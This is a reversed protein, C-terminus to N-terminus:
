RHGSAPRNEPLVVEPWGPATPARRPRPVTVAVAVSPGRRSPIAASRCRGCRHRAPTARAPGRRAPRAGTRPTGARRRRPPGPARDPARSAARASGPCGTPRSGPRGSWPSACRAAPCGSPAPPSRRPAGGPPEAGTPSGGGAGPRAATVECTATSAPPLDHARGTSAASHRLPLRPRPRAGPGGGACGPAPRRAARDGAAEAPCPRRRAGDRRAERAGERRRAAKPPARGPPSRFRASPPPTGSRLAPGPLVSERPWARPVTRSASLRGQAAHASGSYERGASTLPVDCGSNPREGSQAEGPGSGM